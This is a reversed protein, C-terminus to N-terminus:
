CAFDMRRSYDEPQLLRVRTLRCPHLNEMHFKRWVSYQSSSSDPAISRTGKGPSEEVLRLIEREVSYIRQSGADHRSGRNM